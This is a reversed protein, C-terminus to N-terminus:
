EQYKNNISEEITQSGWGGNLLRILRKWCGKSIDVTDSHMLKTKEEWSQAQKISNNQSYLDPQSCDDQCPEWPNHSHFMAHFCSYKHPSGQGWTRFTLLLHWFPWSRVQLLSTLSPRCCNCLFISTWQLSFKTHLHFIKNINKNGLDRRSLRCVVVKDLIKAM